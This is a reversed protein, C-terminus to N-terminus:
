KMIIKGFAGSGLESAFDQEDIYLKEYPLVQNTKELDMRLKETPTITKQCRRWNRTVYVSTILVIIAIAAALCAWGVVEGTTFLHECKRTSPNYIGKGFCIDNEPSNTTSM